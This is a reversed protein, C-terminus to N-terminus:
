PRAFHIIAQKSSTKDDQGSRLLANNNVLSLPGAFIYPSVHPNLSIPTFPANIMMSLGPVPVPVVNFPAGLVPSPFISPPTVVSPSYPTAALIYM